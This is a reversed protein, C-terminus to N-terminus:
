LGMKGKFTESLKRRHTLEQDYTTKINQSLQISKDLIYSVYDFSLKKGKLSSIGESIGFLEGLEDIQVDSPNSYEIFTDFRGPRDVINAPLDEPSNSTAISISNNWSNEGDLFTLMDALGQRAVRETIEEFVFINIDDKFFEKIGNLESLEVKASVFFMRTKNEENCFERLQFLNSTKGNGPPGYLLLGKKNKRNSSKNNILNYVFPKLDHNQLIKPKAQEIPMDKIVLGLGPSYRIEFVGYPLENVSINESVDIFVETVGSLNFTDDLYSTFNLDEYNTKLEENVRKLLEDTNNTRINVLDQPTGTMICIDKGDASVTYLNQGKKFRISYKRQSDDKAYATVKM